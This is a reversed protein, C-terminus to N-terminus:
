KHKLLSPIYVYLKNWKNVTSYTNSDETQVSVFLNLWKGSWAAFLQELILPQTEKMISMKGEDELNWALQWLITNSALLYYLNGEM